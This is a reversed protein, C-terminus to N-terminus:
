NLENCYLSKWQSESFNNYASNNSIYKNNNCRLNESQLNGNKGTM